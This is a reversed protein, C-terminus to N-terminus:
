FGADTDAGWGAIVLSEFPRDWVEIIQVTTSTLIKETHIIGIDHLDLLSKRNIYKIKEMEYYSKHWVTSKVIVEIGGSNIKARGVFVKCNPTFHCLSACVANTLINHESIIAGACIPMFNGTHPHKVKILALYPFQGEKAEEAKENGSIVAFTHSVCLAVFIVLINM